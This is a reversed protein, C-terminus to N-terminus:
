GPESAAAKTPRDSCAAKEVARRQTCATGREYENTTTCAIRWADLGAADTNTRQVYTADLQALLSGYLVHPPLVLTGWQAKDVRQLTARVVEDVELASARNDRPGTRADVAYKAVFSNKIPGPAVLLFPVHKRRQQTGPVLTGAQSECELAMSRVLFHQSAKTACYVARTPAPILGAVSGIVVVAPHASTTQLLPLLAGLVMATGKLNGDSSQQVTAAIRELGERTPHVDLSATGSANVGCPDVDAVGLIPLISTVGFVVHLTDIRGWQTRLRDRLAAVDASSTLEAQVIEVRASASRRGMTQALMSERVQELGELRRGVIMLHETGRLLYQKLLAAGLGDLTSAGLIVVREESAPLQKVRQRRSTTAYRLLWLALLAGLLVSRAM